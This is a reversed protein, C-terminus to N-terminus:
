GHANILDTTDNATGRNVASLLKSRLGGNKEKGNASAVTVKHFM